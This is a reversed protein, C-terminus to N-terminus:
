YYGGELNQADLATTSTWKKTNSKYVLVSGDKLDSADVDALQGLNLDSASAGQIGVSDVTTTTEIEVVAIIENM